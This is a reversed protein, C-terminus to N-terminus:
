SSQGDLLQELGRWNAEIFQGDVLISSEQWVKRVDERRGRAMVERTTSFAVMRGRDLAKALGAWTVSGVENGVSLYNLHWSSSCSLLQVLASGEEETRCFTMGVKLKGVELEQLCSTLTMLKPGCLRELEVKRIVPMAQHCSRALNNLLLLGSVGVSAEDSGLQNIICTGESWSEPFEQMIKKRLQDELPKGHPLNGLFKILLEMTKIDGMKVRKLLDKFGGPRTLIAQTRTCASALALYSSLDLYPLIHEVVENPLSLLSMNLHLSIHVVLLNLSLQIMM